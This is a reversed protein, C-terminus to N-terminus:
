NVNNSSTPIDKTSSTNWAFVGTVKRLRSFLSDNKQSLWCKILFCRSYNFPFLAWADCMFLFFEGFCEDVSNGEKQQLCKSQQKNVAAHVRLAPNAPDGATSKGPNHVHRLIPSLQTTQHNSPITNIGSMSKSSTFKRSNAASGCIFFFFLQIQEWASQCGPKQLFLLHKWYVEKAGFLPLGQKDSQLSQTQKKKRASGQKVVKDRLMELYMVSKMQNIILLTHRGTVQPGGRLEPHTCCRQGGELWRLGTFALMAEAQCVRFSSRREASCFIFVRSAVTAGCSTLCASVHIMPHERKVWCVNHLWAKLM